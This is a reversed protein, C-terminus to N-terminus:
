IAYQNVFCMFIAASTSLSQLMSLSFFDRSVIIFIGPVCGVHDHETKLFVQMHLYYLVHDNCLQFCPSTHVDKLFEVATYDSFHEIGFAILWTQTWIYWIIELKTENEIRM